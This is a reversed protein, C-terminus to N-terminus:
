CRHSRKGALLTGAKNVFFLNGLLRTKAMRQNELTESSWKQRTRGKKEREARARVAGGL